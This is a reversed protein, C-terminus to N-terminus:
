PRRRRLVLAVGGILMLLVSSPEPVTNIERSNGFGYWGEDVLSVNSIGLSTGTWDAPSLLSTESLSTTFDPASGAVYSTWVFGENYFDGANAATGSFATPVEFGAGTHIDWVGDIFSSSSPNGSPDFAGIVDFATAGNQYGLGYLFAGLGADSDWRVFLNPDAAALDSIMTEMTAGGDWNYGWALVENGAGNNWDVVFAARNSGTGYYTISDLSFLVQGWSTATMVAVTIILLVKKM